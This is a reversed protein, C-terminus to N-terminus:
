SKSVAGIALVCFPVFFEKWRTTDASRDATVAPLRLSNRLQEEQKEEEETKRRPLFHKQPSSRIKGAFPSAHM